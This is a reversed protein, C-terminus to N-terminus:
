NFIETIFTGPIVSGPDFDQSQVMGFLQPNGGSIPEVKIGALKMNTM